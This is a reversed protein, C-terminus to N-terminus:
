LKGTEKAYEADRRRRSGIGTRKGLRLRTIAQSNFGKM